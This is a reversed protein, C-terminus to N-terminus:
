YVTLSQLNVNWYEIALGLEDNRYARLRAFLKLTREHGLHV